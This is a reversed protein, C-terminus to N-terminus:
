PASSALLRGPKQWSCRRLSDVDSDADGGAHSRITALGCSCVWPEVETAEGSTPSVTFFHLTRADTGVRMEAATWKADAQDGIGTGVSVVHEHSGRRAKDVCVIQYNSM